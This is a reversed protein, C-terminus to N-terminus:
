SWRGLHRRQQDVEREVQNRHVIMTELVIRMLRLLETEEPRAGGGADSAPLRSEMASVRRCTGELHHEAQLLHLEERSLRSM